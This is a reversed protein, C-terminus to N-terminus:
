VSMMIGILPFTLGDSGALGVIVGRKGDGDFERLGIPGIVEV